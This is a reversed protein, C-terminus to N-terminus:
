GKRVAFWFESPRGRTGSTHHIESRARGERILLALATGIRNAPQNRGFLESIMTRNMGRAGAQRLARLIEDAVPDGLSDGFIYVASAECYAWVAMAAQLHPIDIQKAKDLVAYIMALRVVQAEARATIAGLLGPRDASLQEYDKQWQAAAEETWSILDFGM